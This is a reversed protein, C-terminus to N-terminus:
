YFPWWTPIESALHLVHTTLRKWALKVIKIHELKCYPASKQVGLNCPDSVGREPLDQFSEQFDESKDSEAGSEVGEQDGTHTHTHTHMHTYTYQPWSPPTRFQIAVAHAAIYYMYM